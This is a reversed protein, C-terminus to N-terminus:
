RSSRQRAAAAAISARAPKRVGTSGNKEQDTESSPAGGAGGYVRATLELHRHLLMAAWELDGSAIADLIALHERSSQAVREPALRPFTSYEGFRRLANQRAVAQLLYRNGSWAALTEHFVSNTEIWMRPDVARDRRLLAQHADRLRQLEGPDVAFTPERLGACEVIMRFRYSEGVAERSELAEAFRWGHGPQRRILGDDALKMLVRRLAGRSVGYRPMLETESVEAPIRGRGRDALLAAGIEDFPSPPLQAAVTKTGDVKRSLVFGRGPMLRVYGLSELVGLAARVPTRSVGFARALVLERVPAGAPLAEKGIHALIQRALENQLPTAGGAASQTKAM